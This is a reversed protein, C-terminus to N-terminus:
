QINRYYLGRTINERKGGHQYEYILRACEQQTEATFYLTVFSVGALEPLRDALYLPVHNFVETMKKTGGCGVLFGNGLRDYMKTMGNCSACDKELKVPCNRTIMLPLHGYAIMGYPVSDALRKIDNLNLEYSVTIDKCGLAAYAGLAYSNTINLAFDGLVTFGQQKATYVGGINGALIRTVGKQKLTDLAPQIDRYNEFDIRPLEAVLKELVAQDTVKAAEKVPLIIAELQDIAALPIQQLNAFRGRIKYKINYKDKNISSKDQNLPYYPISKAAARLETIKEIAERRLVNLQSVPMMLRAAGTPLETSEGQAAIQTDGTEAGYCVTLKEIKYPTGGLKAMSQLIMEPTTPKNVALQPCEGEATVSNGDEDTLTLVAPKDKQLVFSGVLAVRPVEKRYLQALDKLVSDASVVDEKGRVGFMDNGLRANYYGQTFGSRSFVAQLNDMDVFDGKLANKCATVAAAVYEPRKMRGEIKISTVGLDSLENLQQVLSMDKLSLNYAGKKQVYFPLRCPQACLGRNGSREGIISSMYCQGSVCMCLAGHVFVETELTTGQVVEAIEQKSMERALVVRSFGLEELQKAGALNHVALQTSAHMCLNPAMKRILSALGLDQVIVADIGLDCATKVLALAEEVEKELVVINLTLHVKVGHIHCYEVAERLADGAFNAANRRANLAAGGLYVADAGCIVAATLQEQAGVPALIEIKNM